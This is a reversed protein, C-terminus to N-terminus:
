RKRMRGRRDGESEERKEKNKIFPLIGCNEPHFDVPFGNDLLCRAIKLDNKKVAEGLPNYYHGIGARRKENQKWNKLRLGHEVM